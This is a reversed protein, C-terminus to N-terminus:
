GEEAVRAVRVVCAASPLAFQHTGAAASTNSPPTLLEMEGCELSLVSAESPAEQILVTAAQTCAGTRFSAPYVAM